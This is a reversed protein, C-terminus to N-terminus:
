PRYSVDSSTSVLSFWTQGSNLNLPLGNKDTLTLASSREKKSWTGESVIGDQFVFVKGTGTTKYATHYGDPDYGKEMILAVVTKPAIQARSKQDIHPEGDQSRLYTNTGPDYTFRPSYLPGSISFDIISATPTQPVEKKRDLPKFSSTKYNKSNNLADLKEFSTYVNHPAYRDNTRWYANANYFQDLDKIGLTKIDSIADPSGGVHGYSGDLPLIFDLYYPRASRIPGIYQPQSEQYVAMFRTIGGEAIAEYVMDAETLGSQPRSEPSNEIMLATVPRSAQSQETLVRGTLPSIVEKKVVVEEEVEVIAEVETPTQDKKIFIFYGGALSGIILLLGILILIKKKTMFKKKVPKVERIATKSVISSALQTDLDEERNDPSVEVTKPEISQETKLIATDSESKDPSIKPKYPKPPKFKFDDM